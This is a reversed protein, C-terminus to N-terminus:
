FRFDQPSVLRAVWIPSHEQWKGLYDWYGKVKAVLDDVSDRTVFFRPVSFPDDEASCARFLVSAGSSYGAERAVQATDANFNRRPKGFPYALLDVPEAIGEEIVDRSQTLERTVEDRSLRILNPHSFTHSGIEFGAARMESLQCWDLPRLQGSPIARLSELRRVVAEDRAIFGATVFFTASMEYKLLLPVAFEYNDAYGDDFSIAVTPREREGEKAASIMERMPIVDCHEAIWALQREFLQPSASSYSASPDISHYCLGVVRNAQRPAVRGLSAACARKARERWALSSV